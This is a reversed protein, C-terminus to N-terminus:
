DILFTTGRGGAMVSCDLGQTLCVFVLTSCLRKRKLVGAIAAIEFSGDWQLIRSAHM